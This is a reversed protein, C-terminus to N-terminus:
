IEDLSILSQNWLCCLFTFLLVFLWIIGIFGSTEILSHSYLSWMDWSPLFLTNSDCPGNQSIRWNQEQILSSRSEIAGVLFLDLSRQVLYHLTSRCYRNSVSDICDLVAILYVDKLFSFDNLFAGVIFKYALLTVKIVQFLSSIKESIKLYIKIM